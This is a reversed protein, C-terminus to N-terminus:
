CSTVIEDVIKFRRTFTSCAEDLVDILAQAKDEPLNHVMSKGERSSIAGVLTPLECVDFDSGVFRGFAAANSGLLFYRLTTPM